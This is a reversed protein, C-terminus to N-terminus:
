TVDNIEEPLEIGNSKLYDTIIEPRTKPPFYKPLGKEIGREGLWHVNHLIDLEGDLNYTYIRYPIFVGDYKLLLHKIVGPNPFGYKSKNKEFTNKLQENVEQTESFSAEGKTFASLASFQVSIYDFTRNAWDYFMKQLKGMKYHSGSLHYIKIGSATSVGGPLYVVICQFYAVVEGDDVGIFDCPIMDSPSNKTKFVRGICENFEDPNEPRNNSYIFGPQNDESSLLSKNFGREKWLDIKKMAERLYPSNKLELLELSMKYGTLAKYTDTLM